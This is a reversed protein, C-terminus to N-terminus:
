PKLDYIFRTTQAARQDLEVDHKQKMQRYRVLTTAARENQGLRQYGQALRYCAETSDPQLRVSAELASVAERWNGADSLLVGLRYHFDAIDPKLATARRLLEIAQAAEAESPSRDPAQSLAMAYFYNAWADRPARLYQERLRQRVAEAGAHANPYAALLMRRVLLSDGRSELLAKVAADYDGLGFQATALGLRLRESTPEVELGRRFVAIAADWSWHRLFEFGLQYLNAETPALEAARQFQTVAAVYNGADEEIAGKLGQLEATSWTQLATDVAQQAAEKNGARQQALAAYYALEYSDLNQQRARELLPVVDAALGFEILMPALAAYTAPAAPFLQLARRLAAGAAQDHGMMRANVGLLLWVEAQTSEAALPELVRAAQEHNRLFFLCLALQYSNALNRPQAQYARRLHPLASEFRRQQMLALGLNFEISADGTRLTLALEFERRAEELKGRRFYNAGLNSHARASAPRLKVAQEFQPTAAELKGQMDLAAALAERVDASRPYKAALQQLTQEAPAFQQAQLQATAQRLQRAAEAPLAQAAASPALLLGAALAASLLNRHVSTLM